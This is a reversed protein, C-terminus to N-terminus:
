HSTVETQDEGRIHCKMFYDGRALLFFFDIKRGESSKDIHIVHDRGGRDMLVPHVTIDKPVPTVWPLCSAGNQETGQHGSACLLAGSVLSRDQSRAAQRVPPSPSALLPGMPQKVFGGLGPKVSIYTVHWLTLTLHGPVAGGRCGRCRWGTM